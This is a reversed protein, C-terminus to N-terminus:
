AVMQLEAAEPPLGNVLNSRVGYEIKAAKSDIIYAEAKVNRHGKDFWFQNIENALHQAGFQSYADFTYNAM